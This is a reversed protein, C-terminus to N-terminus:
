GKGGRWCITIGGAPLISKRVAKLRLFNSDGRLVQVTLRRQASLAQYDIFDIVVVGGIRALRDGAHIGARQAPSGPDVSTILHSM